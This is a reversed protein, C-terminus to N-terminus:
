RRLLLRLAFSVVKSLLHLAYAIVLLAAIAVAAAPRGDLYRSELRSKGNEMGWM